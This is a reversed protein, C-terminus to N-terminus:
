HFSEGDPKRAKLYDETTMVPPRAPAGHPDFGENVVAEVRCDECMRVVDIRKANAGTFMWHKEQLKAVVREIAAKTGFPKGCAICPHPEEEKLTRRGAAWADFDVRPEIRIVKEPCTSQCLGCQVCQSESFTLMPQDPNDGLAGTPCAAVCAHCLTCGAVDLTVGGFPAGAPLPVVGVPTPAAHRLERFITELVGRKAGRAVLGAPQGTVRGRPLAALRAALDDPDDTEITSVVGAGFGLADVITACTEVVRRAGSADHKPRARLLIHAGAAGYAFCAALAEPGIQTAENVRVPLVNAPLGAGFRALAEIL